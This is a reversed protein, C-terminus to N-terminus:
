SEPAFPVVPAGAVGIAYWGQPPEPILVRAGNNTDGIRTRYVTVEGIALGSSDYIVAPEPEGVAPSPETIPRRWRPARDDSVWLARWLGLVPAEAQYIMTVGNITSIRTAFANYTYDSIWKNNCYGMIDSIKAPDFLKQTRFDWGWSGLLGGSYPYNPDTDGSVACPAHERGHNHGVEHALTERSVSDAFGVGIAVRNAAAFSGTAQTVVWGIGTTCSSGCYTRLTDAPKVLGFYYVDSTPKDAARKSTVDDLMGEWDIPVAATVPDGVTISVNNAAPYMAVMYDAYAAIATPSTDPLLNNFSLPIIKIKLGGTNKVGLDTDGTSPFRATGAGGSQATCEVVEISYTLPATMAAPPVYIQFSTKLDNDVSAASITKKSYYTTATGGAPTLTLRASLDRASWNSGPTVFVRFMANRGAVVPAKRSAPAIANGDQMIPIKVSQYVAIQKLTLNSAQDNTCGDSGANGGEVCAGGVCSQGTACVTTCGGCHSPDSTLDVGPCGGGDDTPAVDATDRGLDAGSDPRDAGVDRGADSGTDTRGGTGGGGGTGGAGGRATSGGTGGGGGSGATSGGTASSGGVSSGAAGGTRSSGGSGANGGSGGAVSGGSASSGGTAGTTGGTKGTGGSGGGGTGGAGGGGSGGTATAGGNGNGGCSAAGISLSTVFFLVFSARSLKTM